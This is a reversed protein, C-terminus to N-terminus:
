TARMPGWVRMEKMANSCTRVRDYREDPLLLLLLLM